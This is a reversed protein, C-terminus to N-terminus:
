GKTLQIFVDHMRYANATGNIAHTPKLYRPNLYHFIHYDFVDALIMMHFM